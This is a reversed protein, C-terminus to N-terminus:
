SIKVLRLFAVCEVHMTNPFMDVPQVKVTKFGKGELHKLDRALTAPNCSVYVIREPKMEALVDFLAEDCGKRPPDVVVVDAKVGEKHMEPVVDEAKGCLFEVNDVDNIVANRKADSVAECVSEIGYVKKAKKSLFISITGIGCYIDFVTENGTLGAGELVKNYLVETQVPNVQFFSLPSIEFKYKGIHDTITKDGFIPISKDGMIVNTKKRNINLQISKIEKVKSILSDELEEIFPIATGNIVLVVMIHGTSFASRIVLHRLLGEGKQEDYISIKRKSLFDKLISAIINFRKDQINCEDIDIVNHTRGSFFGIVPKKDKLRIPFQVKNRYNFPNSMGLIIDSKTHIEGIRQLTENVLNEKISLQKDYSVHLLTCGGCSKFHKCFPNVRQPSPEIVKILEGVAYSKTVKNIRIQVKEGEIAGDIFVVFNNIRSVGQGKHNFGEIM